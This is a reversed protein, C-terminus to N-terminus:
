AASLNQQLWSIARTRRYGGVMSLMKRGLSRPSYPPFQGAEVAQRYRPNLPYAADYIAIGLLTSGLVFRRQADETHLFEDITTEKIGKFGPQVVASLIAERVILDNAMRIHGGQWYRRRQEINLPVPVVSGSRNSYLAKDPVYGAATFVLTSLQWAVDQKLHPGYFARHYINAHTHRHMWQMRSERLGRQLSSGHVLSSRPHFAHNWDAIVRGEMDQARGVPPLDDEIVWPLPVGTVEDLPTGLKGEKETVDFLFGRDFVVPTYITEFGRAPQEGPPLHPQDKDFGDRKAEERVAV